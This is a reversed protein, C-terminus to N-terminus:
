TPVEIVDARTQRMASWIGLYADLEVRSRRISPDVPLARPEVEVLGPSVVDVTCECRRLFDALDRTYSPNEIEVHV